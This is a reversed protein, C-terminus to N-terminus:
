FILSFDFPPLNETVYNEKSIFDAETIFGKRSKKFDKPRTVSLAPQRWLTKSPDVLDVNFFWWVNYYLM